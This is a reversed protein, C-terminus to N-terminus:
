HTKERNQGQILLQSITKKGCVLSVCAQDESRKELLPQDKDDSFTGFSCSTIKRKGNEIYYRAPILNQVEGFKHNQYSVVHAQQYGQNDSLSKEIVWALLCFGHMQLFDVNIFKCDKPSNERIYQVVQGIQPMNDDKKM